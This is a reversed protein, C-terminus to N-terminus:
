MMKSSNIIILEAIAQALPIEAQLEKEDKYPKYRQRDMGSKSHILSNRTIYIRKALCTYVGEEKDNWAIIPGNCFSVKTNQYYKLANADLDSIREKLEEIPVFEELVYKLSEQEDGLGYESDIRLRKKVIKVLEFIKDDNKYSFAPHTIKKRLNDVMNRKFAEDYFYEMIHYFSIYKIYPDGSALALRYYDIIENTYFHLPPTDFPRFVVRERAPPNIQFIEHIDTYEILSSGSRYMFEFSFSMNYNRLIELSERKGTQIQLSFEGISRSLIDQFTLEGDDNRMRRLAFDISRRMGMPIRKIRGGQAEIIRMILFICYEPSPRGIAYQINNTSDKTTIPFREFRIRPHDIEALVEYSNESYLELNESGLALVKDYLDKLENNTITLLIEKETDEERAFLPYRSYPNRVVIDADKEADDSGFLNVIFSKLTAYEVM